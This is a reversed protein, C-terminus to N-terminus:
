VRAGNYIYLLGGDSTFSLTNELKTEVRGQVGPVQFRADPVYLTKVRAGTDPHSIRIELPVPVASNPGVVENPDVGTIQALKTWLDAPDFPKVGISGTVDPTDYDQSVYHENGFEEDNELSVSWNVEASQVSNMRTFTPTADTSGIYVDIDRSRVAAPKVSVNEHVKNGNPNNGLQTYDVPATSGWVVRITDYDASFDALLTIGTSTNTFDDGIFLRKFAGSTTDFLSVCLAYVNTTGESYLIATNGFSYTGTGTNTFEKYFPAGPTYYISDGRLSFQQAANQRLGYRYTARELTLYPVAVGHTIDFQNKRSKYPSIVDVPVANRFDVVNSGVEGSLQTAGSAVAGAEAAGARKGIILSELECTVDFTELDFSLDPTDRVTAITEWNGLERVKEENINLNGPGATQIRDIVFGNIDHLIAGAKISM